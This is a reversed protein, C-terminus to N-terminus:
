KVKNIQEIQKELQEIQNLYREYAPADKPNMEELWSMACIVNTLKLKLQQLETMKSKSFEKSFMIAIM